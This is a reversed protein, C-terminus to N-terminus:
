KFYFTFYVGLLAPAINELVSRTSSPTYQIFIAGAALAICRILEELIARGPLVIISNNNLIDTNHSSNPYVTFYLRLGLFIGEPKARPSLRYKVM